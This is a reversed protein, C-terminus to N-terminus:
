APIIEDYFEGAEKRNLKTSNATEGRSIGKIINHYEKEELGLIRKAEQIRSQQARTIGKQATKKTTAFIKRTIESESKGIISELKKLAKPTILPKIAEKYAALLEPEDMLNQMKGFEKMAAENSFARRQRWGRSGIVSIIAGTLFSRAIDEREVEEGESWMYMADALAFATGGSLTQTIPHSFSFAKHLSGYVGGQIFGLVGKRGIEYAEFDNAKYQRVTERAVEQLAFVSGVEVGGITGRIVSGAISVGALTGARELLNFAGPAKAVKAAELVTAGKLGARGFKFLKLALGGLGATLKYSAIFGAIGGITHGATAAIDYANETDQSIIDPEWAGFTGQELFGEFLTGAFVTLPDSEDYVTQQTPQEPQATQGQRYQEFARTVDAKGRETYDLPLAGRGQGYQEFARTVDQRRRENYDALPM